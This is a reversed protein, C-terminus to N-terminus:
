KCTEVTEPTCVDLGITVPDEVPKGQTLDNLMFMAKYDIECPRHGVQDHSTGAKLADMQM